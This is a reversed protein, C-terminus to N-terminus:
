KRSSSGKRPASPGTRASPNWRLNPRLGKKKLQKKTRKMFDGRFFPGAVAEAQREGRLDVGAQRRERIIRYVVRDLRAKARRLRISPPLPLKELYESFPALMFTALEMLDSFAHGVEAADGEAETNFLVKCVIGLTLRTMEDRVDLEVGDEWEHALQATRQVMASAYMAIRQRHFAPQILRRQRLHFADESTVLGEGMLRKARTLARGKHFNVQHTVLVDRIYDPHNLLFFRDLGLRFQAVDGYERALNRLFGARDRNFELLHGLLPMAPPCSAVGAEIPHALSATRIM